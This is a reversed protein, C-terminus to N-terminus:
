RVALCSRVQAATADLYRTIVTHHDGPVLLTEADPVFTTWGMAPRTDPHKEPRLVVVRGAYPAPVYKSIVDRYLTLASGPADNVPLAATSRRRPGKVDAGLSVGPFVLKPPRPAVTDIMLVCCVEEGERMLQRAIELAVMGGACHGGLVYPGRPRAARVAPLREAAMAEISDPVAPDILGHPHVAYFPQDDGLARALKHSFFGGGTFDGHLFFFPPRTGTANLAVLPARDERASNRMARTLDQITPGAFLTTLPLKCGCTREITDIMQAALLSHGGLDFFNDTIGVDRVGLLDEWIAAVMHDVPDQPKVHWGTRLQALDGPAPLAARDLKGNPTMPMAVLMVIAAPAMYDPITQRLQAWLDAPTAQMGPALVIYATLQRTDSADGHVLVVAQAVQPLRRLAAEVEDIEIRHGRIKVQRDRRGLFELAGDRRMRARDGTRYLLAGPASDFPHRVFRETTLDPRGFYGRALGPGGIYIEGPVGIPAPERHDDLVYVETNAIPRGIPVSAADDAVHRVEHWTAFTTTETPGYVHLLRRPRGDRLVIAVAQPEAAEGGFLVDRGRFVEPAVRALQNFLATTVFMATAAADDLARTFAAPSLLTQYSISALQAGNLLAGWIEFTSADFAPNAIHAVVDGPGLQLYDTGIVLRVIARHPVVVGKPRGTSGSTYMVYATDGGSVGTGPDSRDNRAIDAADRDICCARETGAPLRDLLREQTLVLPQGADELMSALWQTPLAPDLPLYAAGAKLIGVLAVTMEIGRELAVAVVSEHSVGQAGLFRALQNARADLEAYSLTITGERVAISGPTRAAQAAFLEPVSADCPDPAVRNSQALLRSRESPEQLALRSIREGPNAVIAALLTRWQAAMNEITAPEFLAAAYDLRGQLQGASETVSLYLDFKASSEIIGEVAQVDLGGLRWPRPGNQLSFSIQFLPNRSLDRSPALEQVLREFPLDQHAYADLSRARLRALYDAFSPDGSLEGRLVLTNIFFGILGELEPRNRGAIPVGVAIDDQGSYRQLLVQFAALLTMFLTAGERLGLAKLASTLMPDITFPVRGGRASAVAPRSRDFPLELAPLGALAGRWYELQRELVPGQLWERQWVAYDAYQLPLAPLPAALGRHFADYLAALERSLISNSWHDTVIHHMNFLLWHANADLRLLRADFLPGRELDFPKRCFAEALRRAETERVEPPFASLDDVQLPLSSPPAVIQRPENDVVAFRTRLVDHRCRIEDISKELAAVDLPGTLREVRPTNYVSRDPLLKDLVWLRQQGFSMVESYGADMATVPKADSEAENPM